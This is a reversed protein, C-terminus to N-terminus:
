KFLEEEQRSFYDLLTAQVDTGEPRGHETLAQVPPQVNVHIVSLDESFHEGCEECINHLVSCTLVMKKM